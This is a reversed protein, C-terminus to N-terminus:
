LSSSQIFSRLKKSLHVILNWKLKFVFVIYRKFKWLGGHLHVVIAINKSNTRKFFFTYSNALTFSHSHLNKTILWIFKMYNKKKQKPQKASLQEFLQSRFYFYFLPVFFFFSFNVTFLDFFFVPVLLTKLYFPFHVCVCLCSCVSLCM